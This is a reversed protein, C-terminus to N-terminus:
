FCCFPATSFTHAFNQNFRDLNNAERELDLQASLSAAFSDVAAPLSLFRLGPLLSLLWACGRLLRLDVKISDEVGPHLVQM